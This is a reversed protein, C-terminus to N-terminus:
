IIYAVLISLLLGFLFLMLSFSFATEQDSLSEATGNEVVLKRVLDSSNFM